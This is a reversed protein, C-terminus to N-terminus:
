QIEGDGVKVNFPKCFYLVHSYDNVGVNPISYTHAGQFTQVKQLELSGTTTSPNNTLYVYLGPLATSANYNDAFVLNIGGNGDDTITFDGTLAYSSTTQITGSKDTPAVTTMNGVNVTTSASVTGTTDEYTVTIDASGAQLAEALGNESISITMPDSTSWTANVATEQGVNNFYTYDFQYTTNIELTDLPNDIRIEADVTDFVIDDGICSQFVVLISFLLIVNKM